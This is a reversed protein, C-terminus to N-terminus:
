SLMAAMCCLLGRGAGRVTLAVWYARDDADPLSKAGHGFVAAFEGPRYKIMRWM